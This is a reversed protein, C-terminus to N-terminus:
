AWTRPLRKPYDSSAGWKCLGQMHRLIHRPEQIVTTNLLVIFDLMEIAIKAEQYGCIITSFYSVQPKTTPGPDGNTQLPHILHLSDTVIKTLEITAGENDNDLIHYVVAISNLFIINALIGQLEPWYASMTLPDKDVPGAGQIHYAQQEDTMIWAQSGKGTKPIFSGDSVCYLHGTARKQVVYELTEASLSGLEHLGAQRIHTPSLTLLNCQFQDFPALPWFSAYSNFEM